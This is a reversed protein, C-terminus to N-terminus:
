IAHCVAVHLFVCPVPKGREIVRNVGAIRCLL